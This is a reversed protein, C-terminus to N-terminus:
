VINEASLSTRVVRQNTTHRLSSLVSSFGGGTEIVVYKCLPCLANIKLWKDVCESHFFHTCPLERLEDNEVYRALCICCVADEPSVIREKDTGAALLGGEFNGEDTESQGGNENRKSKFKYTPLANILESTAGRTLPLDERFGLVSIICPLCCCITACLIFPMAYGICSFTLFAICLRYLNPADAASSHGGFVWVNGVVFWVAFFCELAMKFHDVLANLRSNTVVFNQGLRLLTTSGRSFSGEMAQTFSADAYAVSETANNRFSHQHSEASERGSRHYNRHIYRWWLHPLIAFCGVTYGIVWAFLPARPHEHRSLSLVVIAAVIQSVNAALEVSIWLGSNLPNRHRQGLNEVRGRLPAGRSTTIPSSSLWSAAAQGNTSPRDENHMEPSDNYEGQTVSASTSGGITVDIVHDHEHENYHVSHEMLFPDRDSDGEGQVDLCPLAM